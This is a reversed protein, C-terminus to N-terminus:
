GLLTLDAEYRGGLLEFLALSLAKSEFVACVSRLIPFTIVDITFAFALACIDILHTVRASKIKDSGPAAAVWLKRPAEMGTKLLYCFLPSGLLGDNM